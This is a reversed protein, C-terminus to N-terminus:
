SFGLHQTMFALAEAKAAAAATANAAVNQRRAGPDDFDHTAQLYTSIVIDSGDARSNEVLRECVEPSVEEDATGILIRVPAYTVYGGRFRNGLGCGPYFALAARFGASPAIGITSLTGVAMAALVTSGGNSWGQLGIRGPDIEDRRSALYQLAGYADLPRVTIEDIQSPRENHTGAAFGAPFGRPGFSDVVLAFSSREAWLRSWLLHRRSLTAIDYRGNALSSYPGARGHLLVMAASPGPRPRTPKFLFGVLKTGDLSPFYVTEGDIRARPTQAATTQATATPASVQGDISRAAAVLGGAAMAGVIARRDMNDGVGSRVFKLLDLWMMARLTV